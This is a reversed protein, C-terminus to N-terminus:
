EDGGEEAIGEHELYITRYSNRARHLVGDFQKSTMRLDACIIEKPEENIYYRLLLERYRPNLKDMLNRIKKRRESRQLQDLATPATDRVQEAQELDESPRRRIRRMQEIVHNKTVSTIFSGLSEPHKLEGNRIKLIVIILIDQSFDEIMSSNTDHRIISLVASEFRKVLEAEAETDGAIIRSVLLVYDKKTSSSTPLVKNILSKFM